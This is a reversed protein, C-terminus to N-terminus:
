KFSYKFRILDRRLSIGEATLGGLKPMYERAPVFVIRGDVYDYLVVRPQAQRASGGFEGPASKPRADMELRNARFLQPFDVRIEAADVAVGGVEAAALPSAIAALSAALVLARSAGSAHLSDATVLM